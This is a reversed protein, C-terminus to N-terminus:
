YNRGKKKEPVYYHMKELFLEFKAGINQWNFYTEIRRRGNEGLKRSYQMDSLLLIMARAIESVNCPDVFLGTEGDVVADAVGGTNGAIVPLGCANAEIFTIGFTETGEVTETGKTPMIFLNSACYLAPLLSNEIRGLFHVYPRLKLEDCIKELRERDPGEGVVIYLLDPFYEIVKPLAQLVSEVNKKPVLRAVTLIVRRGNLGYKNRVETTDAGPHFQVLDVGPNLVEVQGKYGAIRVCNATFYSNCMILSANNLLWRGLIKDIKTNIAYTLDNGHVLIAYPIKKLYKLVIAGFAHTTMFHGIFFGDYHKKQYLKITKIIPKFSSYKKCLRYYYVHYPAIVNKFHSKERLPTLVEVLHNRFHLQLCLNHLFIAIGGPNPVFDSAFVLIKM